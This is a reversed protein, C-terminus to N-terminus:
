QDLILQGVTLRRGLAGKMIGTSLRRTLGSEQASVPERVENQEKAENTEDMTM